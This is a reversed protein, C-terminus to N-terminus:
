FEDGLHQVLGLQWVLHEVSFLMCTLGVDHGLGAAGLHDGDGGVHSTAASVDHQTTINFFEDRFDLGVLREICLRLLFLDIGQAHLPGFVVLM